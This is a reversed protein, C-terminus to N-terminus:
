HLNRNLDGCVESIAFHVRIKILNMQDKNSEVISWTRAGVLNNELVSKPLSLVAGLLVVLVVEKIILLATHTNTHVYKKWLIWSYVKMLVHYKMVKSRASRCLFCKRRWVTRRTAGSHKQLPGSHVFWVSASVATQLWM